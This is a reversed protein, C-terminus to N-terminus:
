SATWTVTQMVARAAPMVTAAFARPPGYIHIEDLTMGSASTAMWYAVTYPTTPDVDVYCEWRELGTLGGV